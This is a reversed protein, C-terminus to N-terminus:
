KDNTIIKNIWTYIDQYIDLKNLENLIEHRADKYLKYEVQKLGAKKYFNVAKIIGKGSNGVPDSDGSLFIIPLDKRIKRANSMKNIQILGSTFSRYFSCSFIGGCRPDSIYKDVIKQDRTLWQFPSNYDKNFSGFSLKDLLKSKKQVGSFFCQLRAILNGLRLLLSSNTGSGTLIVGKLGISYATILTRTLFSGMSHGIIFVPKGAYNKASIDNLMKIDDVINCWEKKDPWVGYDVESVANRGHGRHDSAYVAAGRSTLFDAFETYRESHEAMGHVIQVIFKVEKNDPLFENYFITQGNTARFWNEISIM